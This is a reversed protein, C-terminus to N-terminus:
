EEEFFEHCAATVMAIFAMFEHFNCESDGDCDLAEMVKDVTEQDKIEGLFHSLENNILEKLESKKLKHKDGERGSYQHFADIIAIMAKELESM